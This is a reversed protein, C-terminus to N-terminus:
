RRPESTSRRGPSGCTSRTRSCPRTTSSRTGARSTRRYKVISMQVMILMPAPVLHHPAHGPSCSGSSGARRRTRRRTDCGRGGVGSKSASRRRPAGGCCGVAAYILGVQLASIVVSIANVVATHDPNRVSSYVWIPFTQQFGISSASRSNNFSWTFAFIRPRWRPAIHPLIIHRLVQMRSCGLDIAAEEQVREFRFLQAVRHGHRAPLHLDDPYRDGSLSLDINLRGYAMLAAIGIVLWPLILPASSDASRPGGRVPVAHARLGHADRARPVTAGRHVRRAHLERAVTSPPHGGVRGPVLQAHPGRAPVGPHELRQVLVAPPDRAARVPGPVGRRPVAAVDVHERRRSGSRGGARPPRDRRRRASRGGGDLRKVETWAAVWAERNEPPSAPIANEMSMPADLSAAEIVDPPAIDLVTQNAVQYNWETAEFLEAEPSTYYNLLAYAADLNEPAIDPTIGYGCAWLFQGEKAVVFQTNLGEKQLSKANDPYGSSIVIEGSKYLAKISADGKWFTRIQDKHDILFNKVMELDADSM